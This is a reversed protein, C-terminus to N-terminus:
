LDVFLLEIEDQPARQTLKVALTQTEADYAWGDSYLFYEPDTKWRTQHLRLEVFNPVGQMLVYHEQAVPFSFRFIWSNARVVVEPKGVSLIWVNPVGLAQYLPLERALHAASELLPLVTESLVAGGRPGDANLVSIRAPLSGDNGAYSLATALLQEAIPRYATAGRMLLTAARLQQALDVSAAAKAVLLFRGGDVTIAPLIAEELWRQARAELDPRLSQQDGIQELPVYRAVDLLAETVGIRVDLGLEPSSLPDLTVALRLLEEILGVSGRNVVFPVLQTAAFASADGRRVRAVTEALRANDAAFSDTPYTGFAGLFPMLTTPMSGLGGQRSLRDVEVEIEIQQRLARLQRGGDIEAEAAALALAVGAAAALQQSNSRQQRRSPWAAAVKRQYAAVAAGTQGAGAGAGAEAARLLWRLRPGPGAEALRELHLTAERGADLPIFLYSDAQFKSGFPGELVIQRGLEDTFAAVPAGALANFGDILDLPVRAADLGAPFQLLVSISGADGSVHLASGGDFRVEVRDAFIEYGAVSQPRTVPGAIVQLQHDGDLRVAAEAWGVRLEGIGGRGSKGSVEVSGVRAAFADTQAFQAYILAFIVAAYLVPILVYLPALRKRESTSM